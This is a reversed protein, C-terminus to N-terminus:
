CWTSIRDWVTSMMSLSTTLEFVTVCVLFGNINRLCPQDPFLDTFFPSLGTTNEWIGLGMTWYIRDSAPLFTVPSQLQTSAMAM